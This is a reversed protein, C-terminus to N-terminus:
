FNRKPPVVTLVPLSTLMNLAKDVMAANAPSPTLPSVIAQPQDPVVEWLWRATVAYTNGTTSASGVTDGEILIVLVSQGAEM